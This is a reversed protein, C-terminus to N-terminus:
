LFYPPEDTWGAGDLFNCRKKKKCQRRGWFWSSCFATTTARGTM